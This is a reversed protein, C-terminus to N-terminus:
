STGLTDSKRVQQAWDKEVTTNAANVLPILQKMQRM